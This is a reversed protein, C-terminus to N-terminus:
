LFLNLNKNLNLNKKTPVLNPIKKFINKLIKVGMVSLIRCYPGGSKKTFIKKTGFM